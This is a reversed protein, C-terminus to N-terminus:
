LDEETTEELNTQKVRSRLDKMDAGHISWTDGAWKYGEPAIAEYLPSDPWPQPHKEVKIEHEDKQIKM